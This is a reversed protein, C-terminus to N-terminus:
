KHKLTMVTKGSNDKFELVGKKKMSFTSVKGLAGLVAQETEMKACMIQTSAVTGFDIKGTEVNANLAGTMRNCGTSGYIRNENTDFGIFPPNESDSASIAKGEVETINWEGALASISKIKNSTACSALLATMCVAFFVKKM